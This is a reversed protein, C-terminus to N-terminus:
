GEESSELVTSSVKVEYPEEAIQHKDHVSETYIITAIDM